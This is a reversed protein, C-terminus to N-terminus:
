NKYLYLIAIVGPVILLTIELIVLMVLILPTEYYAYKLTSMFSRVMKVSCFILQVTPHTKVTYFNELSM